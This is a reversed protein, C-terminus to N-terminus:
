AFVPPFDLITDEQLCNWSIFGLILRYKGDAEEWLCCFVAETQIMPWMVNHQRLPTGDVVVSLVAPPRVVGHM